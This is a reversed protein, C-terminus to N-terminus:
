SPANGPNGGPKWGVFRIPTATKRGHGVSSVHAPNDGANGVINAFDAQAYETVQGETRVAM